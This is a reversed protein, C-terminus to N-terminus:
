AARRFQLVNSRVTLPLCHACYSQGDATENGCALYDPGPPEDAIHRCQNTGLESFDRLDRFPINLRGEFQSPSETKPEDPMIRETRAYYKEKERLAKRKVRAKEREYREEDPIRTKELSLGMRHLKGIVSNRTVHMKAAIQSGSLRQNFFSKLEEIRDETWEKGRGFTL